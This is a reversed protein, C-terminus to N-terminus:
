GQRLARAAHPSDARVQSLFFPIATRALEDHRVFFTDRGEGLPVLRSWLSLEQEAEAFAAASAEAQGLAAHGRARLLHAEYALETSCLAEARAALQQAYRVAQGPDQALLIEAHLRLAWTAVRGEESGPIGQLRALM